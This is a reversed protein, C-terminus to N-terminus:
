KLLTESLVHNDGHGFNQRSATVFSKEKKNVLHAMPAAVMGSLLKLNRCIRVRPRIEM